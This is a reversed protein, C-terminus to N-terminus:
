TTENLFGKCKNIVENKNNYYDSEWVIMIEYGKTKLLGIRDEDEQRKKDVLKGRILDGENYIDPNGHWYDGYFEVIKNKYKFDVSLKKFNGIYYFSYEDNLEAFYVHDKDEINDYLEWFLDQSISSYKKNNTNARKYNLEQWKQKGLIDGYREIYYEESNTYSLRSIMENYRHNGKKEGYRNVFAKRTTKVMSDLYEDYKTKWISGYTDKYYQKSFRYSQASNRKVWRIYGDNVGYKVQYEELSRGNKQKLGNSHLENVNTKQTNLKRELIDNWRRLGEVKGYRKIQAELSFSAKSKKYDNWKRSGETKGYREIFNELTQKCKNNKEIFRKKGIVNGYRIINSNLSSSDRGLKKLDIFNDVVNIHILNDVWNNLYKNKLISEGYINVLLDIQKSYLNYFRCDTIKM